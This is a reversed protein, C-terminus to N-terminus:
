DDFTEMERKTLNTLLKSITIDSNHGNIILFQIRDLTVTFLYIKAFEDKTAFNMGSCYMTSPSSFEWFQGKEQSQMERGSSYQTVAM